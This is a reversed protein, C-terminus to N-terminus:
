GHLYAMFSNVWTQNEKRQDLLDNGGSTKFKKEQEMKLMVEPKNDLHGPSGLVGEDMYLNSDRIHNELFSVYKNVFVELPQNSLLDQNEKCKLSFHLLDRQTKEINPRLRHTPLYLNDRLYDYLDTHEKETLVRVGLCGVSNYRDEDYNAVNLTASPNLTALYEYLVAVTATELEANVTRQALAKPLMVRGVWAWSKSFRNTQTNM